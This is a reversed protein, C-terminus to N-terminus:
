CIRYIERYSECKIELTVAHLLTGTALRSAAGVAVEEERRGRGRGRHSAEPGDPPGQKRAGGDRRAGAAADVDHTALAPHREGRGGVAVVLRGDGPPDLHSLFCWGM